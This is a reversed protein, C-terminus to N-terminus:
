EDTLKKKKQELIGRMGVALSGDFGTLGEQLADSM